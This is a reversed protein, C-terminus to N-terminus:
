FLPVSSGTVASRAVCLPELLPSLDCSLFVPRTSRIPLSRALVRPCEFSFPSPGPYRSLCANTLRVGILFGVSQKRSLFTPPNYFLRLSFHFRDDRPYGLPLFSSGFLVTSLTRSCCPDSFLIPFFLSDSFPTFVARECVRRPRPLSPWLCYPLGFLSSM